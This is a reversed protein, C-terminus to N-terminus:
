QLYKVLAYLVFKSYVLIILKSFTFLANESLVLLDVEVDICSAGGVELVVASHELAVGMKVDVVENIM